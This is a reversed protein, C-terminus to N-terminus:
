MGEGDGGVDVVGLALDGIGIISTENHTAIDETDDVLRGGSSDGVTEVLLDLVLAIEHDERRHANRHSSKSAAVVEDLLELPLVLFTFGGESQKHRIGNRVRDVSREM